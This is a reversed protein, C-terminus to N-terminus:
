LPHYPVYGLSGSVDTVIDNCRRLLSLLQHSIDFRMNNMSTTTATTSSSTATIITTNFQNSLNMPEVKPEVKIPHSSVAWNEHVDLARPPPPPPPPPLPFHPPLMQPMFKEFNKSNVDMAGGDACTGNNNPEKSNSGGEEEGGLMFKVRPVERQVSVSSGVEDGQKKLCSKLQANQRQMPTMLRPGSVSDGRGMPRLQSVDDSAGNGSWKSSDPESVPQGGVDKVQYNVNVQGFLSKSRIAYNYAAQAHAKHKFVVKCTFTKWFVRMASHDLPGFRGFRAKLEASSPLTSHHPFKCVLVAPEALRAPSESKRGSDLNTPKAPPYANVVRLERQVEPIKQGGAKREATMMKLDNLKKHRKASIEEQRDSPSRKRGGRTPDEPRPLHRAHKMGTGGVEGANPIETVTNFPIKDFSPELNEAESAPSLVLSKQYVLSRFRLVVQFVAARNQEAGYFPDLALALMDNIVEPLEVEINGLDFKQQALATDSPVHTSSTDNNGSRLESQSKEPALGIGISKGATKRLIEKGEEKPTKLRKHSHESNTEFNLEKKKKKKEGAFPRELNRDAAPRKLSKTKKVLGEINMHPVMSPSQVDIQLKPAAVSELIDRDGGRDLVQNSGDINMSSSQNHPHFDELEGLFKSSEDRTDVMVELGKNRSFGDLSSTMDLIGSSAELNTSGIAGVSTVRRNLVNEEKAQLNGDEVAIAPASASSYAVTAVLPSGVAPLSIHTKNVEVDTFDSVAAVHNRDASNAGKGLVVQGFDDGRSITGAEEQKAMAESILPAPSRKQLMYDGPALSEVGGKHASSVNINKDVDAFNSSGPEIVEDRRKFLYKDKKLQEKVKASRSNSKKEGLAEAFVMPGSLPARISSRAIQDLEERSPRVPQQGFAQAYTEDFEEFVAKRYSLVTAKNRISGVDKKQFSTPNLALQQVFNLVDTPQFRERAKKIQVVSYVAGSEYGAVDVAFYSSVSTPRFNFFNRCRCTLGLATRRCFEDMAEDVAKIFSKLSTQRSKEAYHPEFPILEAPDFWGYSSDGFFAVLVHGVRKTRRVSPNAFAENFVHGPWWPHSKVKGWVMDGPEFGYSLAKEAELGFAESMRAEAGEDVNAYASDFDSGGGRTGIKALEHERMSLKLRENKGLVRPKSGSGPKGSKSVFEDFEDMVDSLRFEDSDTTEFEMKDKPDSSNMVSVM